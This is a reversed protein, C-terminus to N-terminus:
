ELRNVAESFRTRFAFLQAPFSHMDAPTCTLMTWKPSGNAISPQGCEELIALFDKKHRHKEGKKDQAQYVHDKRLYLLSQSYSTTFHSIDRAKSSAPFLRNLHSAQDEIRTHIVPMAQHLILKSM